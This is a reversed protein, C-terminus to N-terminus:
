EIQTVEDEKATSVNARVDGATTSEHVNECASCAGDITIANDNSELITTDGGVMSIEAIFSTITTGVPFSWQILGELQEFKSVVELAERLRKRLDEPTSENIENLM